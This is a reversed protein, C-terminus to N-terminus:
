YRIGVHLRVTQGPDAQVQFIAVSNQYTIPQPVSDVEGGKPMPQEVYFTVPSDPPASLIYMKEVIRIVKHKVVGNEIDEVWRTSEHPSEIHCMYRNPRFHPPADPVGPASPEPIFVRCQQDVFIEGPGYQPPEQAFSCQLLIAAFMALGAFVVISKRM